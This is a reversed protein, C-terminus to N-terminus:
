APAPQPRETNQAPEVVIQALATYKPSILLSAAAALLTGCIAITLILKRRRRLTGLMQALHLGPTASREDSPQAPFIKYAAGADVIRTWNM